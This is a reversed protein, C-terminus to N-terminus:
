LARLQAHVAFEPGPPGRWGTLSRGRRSALARTPGTAARTPWTYSGNPPPPGGADQRPYRGRRESHAGTKASRGQAPLCTTYGGREAPGRATRLDPWARGRKVAIQREGPRKGWLGKSPFLGRSSTYFQVGLNKTILQAWAHSDRAHIPRFDPRVLGIGQSGASEPNAAGAPRRAEHSGDM